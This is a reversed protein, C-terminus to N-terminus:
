KTDVRGRLFVVMSRGLAMALYQHCHMEHPSLGAQNVTQWDRLM